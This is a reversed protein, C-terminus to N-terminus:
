RRIILLGIVVLLLFLGLVLLTALWARRANFPTPKVGDPGHVLFSMRYNQRGHYATHIFFALLYFGITWGNTRMRFSPTYVPFMVSLLDLCIIITSLVVGARLAKVSPRAFGYYAVLGALGAVGFMVDGVQEFTLPGKGALFLRVVLAYLYGVASGAVIWAVVM